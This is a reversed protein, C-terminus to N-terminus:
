VLLFSFFSDNLCTVSDFHFRLGNELWFELWFFEISNGGKTKSTAEDESATTLLEMSNARIRNRLETLRAYFRCCACTSVPLM